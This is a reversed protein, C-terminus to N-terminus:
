PLSSASGQPLGQPYLRYIEYTVKFVLSSTSLAPWRSYSQWLHQGFLQLNDIEFDSTTSFKKNAARVKQAVIRGREDRYPALQVKRGRSDDAVAYGFKKCTDENIRRKRLALVEGGEILPKGM